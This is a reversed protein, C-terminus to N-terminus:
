EEKQKLEEKQMKVLFPYRTPYQEDMLIVQKARRNKPNIVIPGKLNATM